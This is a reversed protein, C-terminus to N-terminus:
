GCKWVIINLHGVSFQLYRKTEHTVYSGVTKGVIVNWSPANTTDCHKKIREAIDRETRCEQVIKIAQETIDEVQLITIHQNYHCISHDTLLHIFLLISVIDLNLLVVLLLPPSQSINLIVYRSSIVMMIPMEQNKIVAKLYKNEANAAAM